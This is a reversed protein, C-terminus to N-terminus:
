DRITVENYLNGGNGREPSRRETVSSLERWNAGKIRDSGSPQSPGVPVLSGHGQAEKTDIM